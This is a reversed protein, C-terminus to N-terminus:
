ELSLVLFLALAIGAFAALKKRDTGKKGFLIQAL